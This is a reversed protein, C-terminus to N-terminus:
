DDRTKTYDNDSIKVPVCPVQIYLVDVTQCHPAYLLDSCYCTFCNATMVVAKDQRTYLQLHDFITRSITSLYCAYKKWKSM